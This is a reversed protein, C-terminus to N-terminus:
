LDPSKATLRDLIARAEVAAAVAPNEVKGVLPEDMTGALRNAIVHNSFRRLDRRRNNQDIQGGLAIRGMLSM